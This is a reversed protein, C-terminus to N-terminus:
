VVTRLIHFISYVLNGSARYLIAILLMRQENEQGANPVFGRESGRLQCREVVSTTRREKLLGVYSTDSVRWAEVFDLFLEKHEECRKPM